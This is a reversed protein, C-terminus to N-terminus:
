KIKSVVYDNGIKEVKLTASYSGISIPYVNPDSQNIIVNSPFATWGLEYFCYEKVARLKKEFEDYSAKARISSESRNIGKGIFDRELSELMKNAEDEQTLQIFGYVNKDCKEKNEKVFRCVARKANEELDRHKLVYSNFNEMNFSLPNDFCYMFNNYTQILSSKTDFNCDILCSFKDGVNIDCFARARFYNNYDENTEIYDPYKSYDYDVAKVGSSLGALLALELILIKKM